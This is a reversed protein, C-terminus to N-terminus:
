DLVVRRLGSESNTMLTREFQWSVVFHAGTDNAVAEAFTDLDARWHESSNVTFACRYEVEFKVDGPDEACIRRNRGTKKGYMFMRSTPLVARLELDNPAILEEDEVLVAGIKRLLAVVAPKTLRSDAELYVEVSM